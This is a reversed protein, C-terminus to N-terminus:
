FIGKVARNFAAIRCIGLVPIFFLRLTHDPIITIIGLGILLGISSGITNVVSIKSYIEGINENTAL